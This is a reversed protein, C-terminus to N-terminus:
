TLVMLGQRDVQFERQLAAVKKEKLRRTLDISQTDVEQPWFALLTSGAGSLFCGLAGERYWDEFVDFMSPIFQARQETHIRDEMVFRFAAKEASTLVEQQLLYVLSAVRSTQFVLDGRSINVPILQRSERTELEREPIIGVIKLPAKITMPIRYFSPGTKQTADTELKTGTLPMCLNWGGYLAATLNDPHPEFELAFELIQEIRYAMRFERRLTENALTLGALIATSSSGLGRSFPVRVLVQVDWALPEQGSKKFLYQYAKIFLNDDNAKKPLSNAPVTATDASLFSLKLSGDKRDVRDCVFENRLNLAIGWIDFGPGLNATSAPISIKLSQRTPASSM